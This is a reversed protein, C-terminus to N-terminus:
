RTFASMFESWRRTLYNHEDMFSIWVAVKSMRSEYSGGERMEGQRIIRRGDNDNLPVAAAKGGYWFDWEAESLYPKVTMPLSMYSGIRAMFSGPWGSLWWNLFDYAADLSAGSARSSICLGDLWGRYGEKPVAYVVDSGIARLALIGQAWISGIAAGRRDMLQVADQTYEWFGKFHGRRKFSILLEILSDIEEATLNGIDDFTLAGSARAALAAEVIGIPAHSTLAVRGRCRPDLLWSWSEQADTEFVNGRLAASYGFSDMNHVTPLMSIRETQSSSLGGDPQVFLMRGPASGRGRSIHDLFSAGSGPGLLDHWRTIRATDIPQIARATWALEVSMSWHDLVDFADPNMVARQQLELGDKPEFLVSFGLDAEARRRIPEILGDPPGLVRLTTKSRGAM